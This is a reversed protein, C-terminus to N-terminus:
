DMDEMDELHVPEKSLWDLWDPQQWLAVGLKRAQEAAGDTFRQNTAAILTFSVEPHRQRYVGAGAVVDRVAEWGLRCERLSSKCQVLIGEAGRLGIVDIGDDGSVRTLRAMYGDRTLRLRCLKEFTLAQLRSIHEATLLTRLNVPEGDPTPVTTWDSSQIDGSGNLMDAALARKDALLRHLKMEFTEFDPAHVTPYYVHVPRTQGIRYARDTAQDEKAPNWARTFHIVHNAAQINVGFGVATTSLIIVGFGPQRQFADIRAQRSQDGSEAGVKTSGNVIPVPIGFHLHIRHKLVCQLDRFETFVIVKEDRMRIAELQTILWDLKPSVRRHEVMPWRNADPRTGPECPEACISRLQHLLAFVPNGKTKQGTISAQAQKRAQQAAQYGQVAQRYLGRQFNSLLLSRCGEDKHKPPLDAVESKMRRLLQPAILRRLQDLQKRGEDTSTEIPRRYTTCFAGLAGLLGPQLFDFLCWLDALNNEVPTGTCAIKFRAHQAKAAHTMLAGPTKIKQAEDCVMISWTERGFGFECDRLTEYTTLVIRADGRWGPRLLGQVGSERTQEDLETVGLKRTRLTEGYMPLVAQVLPGTFFRQLEAQWNDLLSVPAVVLAPEATPGTQELYWVIFALLQLTKGLGMDDALLAGRVGIDNQAAWLHQLWALGVRQHPKLEITTRLSQPLAPAKGTDFALAEARAEIVEIYDLAEVNQRIQLTQRPRPIPKQPDGDIDEDPRPNVPRAKDWAEVLAAAETPSVPVPWDPPAHLEDAAPTKVLWDKLNQIAAETVETTVREGTATVLTIVFALNDPAWGQGDDKRALFPVYIPRHEGIDFVRPSFRDLDLLEGHSVPEGAWPEALWGQLSALTEATDSRLELTRDGWRFCLADGDFAAALADMFAKVTARAELRLAPLVVSEDDDVGIRVRVAVIRGTEDREDLCDFEYFRVGARKRAEEFSEPPVVTSMTEGLLAYPNRLFAEARQGAVRRGPMHKIERLVAAADAEVIVRIREGEVTTLDYHPQVDAYADFRDLWLAQPAGAVLPSVEVVETGSVQVCRLALDLEAATLIVTRDLYRDLRAGAALALRRLKAWAREQAAQTREEPGRRAFDRVASVLAWAASPLLWQEGDFNALAGTREFSAPRAGATEWGLSLEFDQDSLSGRTQLLPVLAIPAPLGLLVECGHYEPADILQYAEQWGLLLREDVAVAYSEQEIQALLAVREWETFSEPMCLWGAAAIPIGDGTARFELGGETFEVHLSSKGNTDPKKRGRLWSFM